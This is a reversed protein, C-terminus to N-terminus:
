LYLDLSIPSSFRDSNLKKNNKSFFVIEGKNKTNTKEEKQIRSLRIHIKIAEGDHFKM